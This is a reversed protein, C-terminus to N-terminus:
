INEKEEFEESTTEFEYKKKPTLQLQNTNLYSNTSLVRSGLVNKKPSEVKDSSNINENSMKMLTAAGLVNKMKELSLNSLKLQLADYDGSLEKFESYRERYSQVLQDYKSELKAKTQSLEIVSENIEEKKTREDLQAKLEAIEKDKLQIQLDRNEIEKNIHKKSEESDNIGKELTETKSELALLKKSIDDKLSELIIEHNNSALDHLKVFEQQLEKSLEANSNLIKDTISEESLKSRSSEEESSNILTILESIHNTHKDQSNNLTEKLDKTLAKHSSQLGHFQAELTESKTSNQGELFKLIENSKKLSQDFFDKPAFGQISDGITSISNLIERKSEETLAKISETFNNENNSLKEGLTKILSTYDSNQSKIHHVLSSLSQIHDKLEKLSKSAPTEEGNVKSDLLDIKKIIDKKLADTSDTNHKLPVLAESMVEQIVEKSLINQDPTSVSSKVNQVLDKLHSNNNSSREVLNELDLQTQKVSTDVGIIINRLSAQSDIIRKLQHEVESNDISAFQLKGVSNPSLNKNKSPSIRVMQPSVPLPPPNRSPDGSDWMSKYQIPSGSRGAKLPSRPPTSPDLNEKMPSNNLDNDSM